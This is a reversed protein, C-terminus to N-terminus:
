KLGLAKRVRATISQRITFMEGWPDADLSRLRGPLNRVHFHNPLLNPTLEDWALPVSVPAGARARPSYPAVATAGRDNRLYDLYLKGRRAAKTMNTTYRDPADAAFREAFAKACAKVEDWGHRRQLPLVLHLGKGGTTKVFSVLGIKELQERMAHATEVVEKWPFEPDPDLDFIMRDPKDPADAQAGWPHIELVGMQVLSVLDVTTKLVVFRVTRRKEKISVTQLNEPMGAQANKQFFCEQHEGSPCRLLAVPRGAVHPLIWDAVEMYYSALGLKTIGQEPYLVREPNTLRVGAPLEALQHSEDAVGDGESASSVSKQSRRESGQRSSTASAASKRSSGQSKAANDKKAGDTSAIARPSESLPIDRVISRAPKDERFGQFSPHRLLGGRTWNSFEVQAVLQPKVWRTGHGGDHTSLDAFPSERQEIKGLRKRIDLLMQDNFGTGVRGAYILDGESDYYGVLIAGLGKRSATPDTFGGIVFEERRVCKTKIWDRSRGGVYPRDRRKSVVGELGKRCCQRLFDPGKGIVHDSYRFKADPALSEFLEALLQKRQELPVGRLDYGDLFLLDFCYYLLDNTRRESFVNQLAQFSSIGNAELAVVEGDLVANRVPLSRAFTTLESFRDSWDQQNRSIMRAEGDEIVCLMRYGDLKIEHLWRDGDPAQSDLTALQVELKQPRKARRAGKLSALSPASKTRTASTSSKTKVTQRASSAAKAGDNKASGERPPTERKASTSRTETPADTEAPLSKGSVVSQPLAELVDYEDHPRASDDREKILLWNKSREGRKGDRMRVLTWGGQLKEGDLTLKIKGAAYAAAPDEECTWTGQDWIIVTGGGYEGAPITGEFDGYELPHDEVEVALRKEAPDLSPGKPIAWSKLVGDMELRFDYHLHSAQHKQIVFRHQNTKRSRKGKPEPTRSFRRKRRYETLAM